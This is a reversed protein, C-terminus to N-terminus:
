FTRHNLRIFSANLNLLKKIRQWSIILLIIFSICIYKHIKFNNKLLFTRVCLNFLLKELLLWFWSYLTEYGGCSINLCQIKKQLLMKYQILYKTIDLIGLFVIIPIIVIYTIIYTITLHTYMFLYLYLYIYVFIYIYWQNFITTYLYM